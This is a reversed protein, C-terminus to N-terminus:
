RARRDRGPAAPRPLTVAVLLGGEPRTQIDISGHHASAIAAVISLGLGVGSDSCTREAGGRRFPRSLQAADAQSLVPGSNEVILRASQGETTTTVHVWGGPQNYRIANDILNIAMRSLLTQGGSVQVSALARHLTVDAAAARDGLTGLADAALRSLSITTLDDIVGREARALVLFGEVLREAQDLGERVKASLVSADNSVPPSKAATVDLSTRMMALPTRLEHSANAVFARQADFAGELRALLADITGALDTIEDSPGALALRQHLNEESIHQATATIRRLPALVRGAMVWGLGASLVAMIGLAVGFWILLSHLDAFRQANQAAQVAGPSVPKAGPPGTKPGPAFPGLSPVAVHVTQSSGSPSSTNASSILHVTAQIPFSDVLVYSVGLLATGCLLFLAGYTLALRMRVTRRPVGGGALRRGLFAFPRLGAGTKATLYHDAAPGPGATVSAPLRGANGNTRDQGAQYGTDLLKVHELM